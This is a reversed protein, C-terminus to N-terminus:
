LFRWWPKLLKLAYNLNGEPRPDNLSPHEHTTDIPADQTNGSRLRAMTHCSHSIEHIISQLLVADESAPIVLITNWVANGLSKYFSMTTGRGGFLFLIIEDQGIKDQITRYVQQFDITTKEQGHEVVTLDDFNM